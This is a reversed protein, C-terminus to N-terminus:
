ALLYNQPNSEAPEDQPLFSWIEETIFPMYPHLMRLMDKLVRVLVMRAVKKDEEDDGYLRGKIIEIYWDCFENWILDYIRQAALSLDFKEMAETVYKVADNVRSIIWKDEDKLEASDPDAM